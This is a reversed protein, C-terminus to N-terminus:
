EISEYNSNKRWFQKRSKKNQIKVGFSKEHKKVKQRKLKERKKGLKLILNKASKKCVKTIQIKAGFNTKQKKIQIKVGFSKEHRIQTKTCYIM